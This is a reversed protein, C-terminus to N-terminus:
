QCKYLRECVRQARGITKKVAKRQVDDFTRRSMPQNVSKALIFVANDRYKEFINNM